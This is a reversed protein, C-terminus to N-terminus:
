TQTNLHVRRRKRLALYNTLQRLLPADTNLELFDAGAIKCTQRLATQRQKMIEEYRSRIVSDGTDILSQEGSESDEVTIIGVNPLVMEAPDTVQICLVDNRHALRRLSNEWGQAVCFDSVLIVLSRRRIVSLARELIATLQTSPEPSPHSQSPSPLSASTFQTRSKTQTDFMELLRVVHSRLSAPALLQVASGDRGDNLLAAIRDGHQVLLGALSGIAQQALRQKSSRASQVAMSNSTDVLFWATLEREEHFTRIHLTGTRASVNWDLHRIDDGAQYERIDSMRLGAGHFLTEHHGQFMGDLRRIVTWHLTRMLAELDGTNAPASFRHQDEGSPAPVGQATSKSRRLLGFM